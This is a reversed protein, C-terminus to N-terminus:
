TLVAGPEKTKSPFKPSPHARARPQVLERLRQLELLALPQQGRFLSSEPEDALGPLGSWIEARNRSTEAGGGEGGRMGAGQAETNQKQRTVNHKKDDCFKRLM